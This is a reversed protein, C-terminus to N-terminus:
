FIAVLVGGIVVLSSAIVVQITLRELKQLFLHVCLITFLPSTAALPSILVVPAKALSSYYFALAIGNLFGATILLSIARKNTTGIGNRFDRVTSLSIVILGALLAFTLIVFPPAFQTAHKITVAAVGWFFATGLGFAYGLTRDKKSIMTKRGESLLLYLGGVISVTGAIAIITTTEGLFLLALILAFLPYSHPVSTGRAAGIYRMAQYLFLTGLGFHLIGILAFWGVDVLSVSVLAEFDFILAIVLAVIFSTAISFITGIKVKISRLGVRALTNSGGWFIAALIVLLIGLATEEM